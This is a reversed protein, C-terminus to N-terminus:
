SAKFDFIALLFDQERSPLFAILAGDPHRMVEGDLVLVYNQEGNVERQEIQYDLGDQERMEAVLIKAISILPHEM